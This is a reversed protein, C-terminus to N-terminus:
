NRRWEIPVSHQTIPVTTALIKVMNFKFCGVVTVLGKSQMDKFLENM